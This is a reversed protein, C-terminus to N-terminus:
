KPMRRTIHNAKHDVPTCTHGIHIRNYPNTPHVHVHTAEIEPTAHHAETCLHDATHDIQHTLAPNIAIVETHPIQVDHAVGTTTAIIGINHDPIAEIHIIVVQATTETSIHSHCPIVKGTGTRMTTDPTQVPMTAKTYNPNTISQQPEWLLYRIHAISMVNLVLLTPAIEQHADKNRASFVNIRM